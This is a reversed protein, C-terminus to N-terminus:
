FNLKLQVYQFPNLVEKARRIQERYQRAQRNLEKRIEAIRFLGRYAQLENMLEVNILETKAHAVKECELFYLRVEHRKKSRTQMALLKAFDLTLIFDISRSRNRTQKSLEESQRALSSTNPSIKGSQPTLPLYDVGEIAYKDGTIYTEVWRVYNSKNLGLAEYLQSCQVAQKGNETTTIQLNTM